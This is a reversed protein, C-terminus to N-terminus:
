SEAGPCASLLDVAKALAEPAGFGGAKTVLLLGPREGGRVACLPIGPSVEGLLDVARAGLVSMLARAVDGGTAAVGPDPLDRIAARVAGALARALVTAVEAGSLGRGAGLSQAAEM